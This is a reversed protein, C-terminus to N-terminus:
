KRTGRQQGIAENIKTYQRWIQVDGGVGIKDSGRAEKGLKSHMRNTEVIGVM